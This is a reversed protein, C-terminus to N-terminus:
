LVEMPLIMTESATHIGRGIWRGCVVLRRSLALERADVAPYKERVKDTATVKL